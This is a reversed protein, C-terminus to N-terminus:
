PKCVGIRARSENPPGRIRGEFDVAVLNPGNIDRLPVDGHLYRKCTLNSRGM